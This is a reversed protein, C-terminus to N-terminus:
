SVSIFDNEWCGLDLGCNDRLFKELESRNTYTIESIVDWYKNKDQKKKYLFARTFTVAVVKKEGIPDAQVYVANDLDLNNPKAIVVFHNSKIWNILRTKAKVIKMALQNDLPRM